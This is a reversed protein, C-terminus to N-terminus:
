TTGRVFDILGANAEACPLDDVVTETDGDAAVNIPYSTAHVCGCHQGVRCLLWVRVSGRDVIVHNAGVAHESLLDTNASRDPYISSGNPASSM